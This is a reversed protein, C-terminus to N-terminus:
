ADFREIAERLLESVPVVAEAPLEDDVAIGAKRLADLRRWSQRDDAYIARGFRRLVEAAGILGEARRISLEGASVKRVLQETVGAANTVVV